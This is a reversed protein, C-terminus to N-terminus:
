LRRLAQDNHLIHHSHCDEADKHGTATARVHDLTNNIVNQMGVLAKSFPAVPLCRLVPPFLAQGILAPHLFLLRGPFLDFIDRKIGSQAAHCVGWWLSPNCLM